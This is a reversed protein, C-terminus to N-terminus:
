LNYHKLINKHIKLYRFLFLKKILKKLTNQIGQTKEFFFNFIQTKVIEYM